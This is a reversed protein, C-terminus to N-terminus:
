LIRHIQSAPTLCLTGYDLGSIVTLGCRRGPAIEGLADEMGLAQAGGGAAWALLEPLPIGPFMRMEEFVSLRDNSALSDTGLCINLRNRRLLEVPPELGSIYRNSRPCLCWWVPATFHGMVIDIDRQTICCDHVLTVRRDHPVCAVLREAPSGYHLFDCSFGAKAYWEWLPGRHEFLAAEGPSEMFHISLPADGRAAIARLPADQVSYLSHPTLSTQPHRLLPRVSDASALRLGFFEIFTHYAVRSREKVSFTTDGNSIDGVAQVGDQWMAADAAAVARLREEPGFRERVQGMAGAFGAFGCREPIAGLLYSLELHCHANVLGPALVGAYFETGPCRDPEPCSGVSLIRGDAAVGVLPNRLLGQPTWLLNSAIRRSPQASSNMPLIRLDLQQRYLSDVAVSTHSYDIEPRDGDGLSAPAEASIWSIWTPAPPHISRLATFNEQRDRRLTTTYVNYPHQRPTRAVGRGAPRENRDLSDVLYKLSLNYEGPRVDVSFRLRATDRLSGVRILSDAYVTRTFSRRAVNDITDLVAVERDYFKGEAELKDIAMEVVDGLRASKRKSFNGITYYVDRTTYGYRAFIPEYINLSDINVRVDGIYANTLFADHFIQALKEDP